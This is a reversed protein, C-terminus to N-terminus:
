CGRCNQVMHLTHGDGIGVSRLPTTDSANFARGAFILRFSDTAVAGNAHASATNVTARYLDAVTADPDVRVTATHGSISKVFIQMDPEILRSRKHSRNNNDDAVADADAHLTDFPDERQNDDDDDFLGDMDDDDDEDDGFTGAAPSPWWAHLLDKSPYFHRILLYTALYRNKQDPDHASDPRHHLFPTGEASGGGPRPLFLRNFEQYAETHLVLQHWMEDVPASPSLVRASYDRLRLKHQFFLV